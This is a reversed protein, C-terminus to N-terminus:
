EGVAVQYQELKGDPMEYTWARLTKQAFRIRYVRLTMGGRLEQHAQLIDTPPGLPGLGAAFDKLTQEDFYSNANDTFLSRDITGQQLGVFIKKAQELKAPTAPDAVNFIMPIIKHVIEGPASSSDENVLTIIAVRDDPFVINQSTFGSVGGSHALMRRGDQSSVGIGLAYQSGVGNKLVTETELQKYSAPSLLKQDIISLDWRALDEATMALQGAAFLWGKGLEPAARLPGLGYRVYGVPALTSLFGPDANTVSNMGLPRFIKEQLLDFFPKGTVKEAIAGAITFNTNSYQWKTGPDFDLPKDAWRQMIEAATVPKLMFPPVYDQPWYDQYGSTHSLLERITVENARTLNPIYKSVKDDLSLKGEQQLLLMLSATIQKSVSGISYRLDTQAPTAPDLKAKGYAHLYAIKGNKVIALSVGPAGTSTLVQQVADDIKQSLRPDLGATEQSAAGVSGLVFLLAPICLWGAHRNAFKM